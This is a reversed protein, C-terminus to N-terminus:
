RTEIRLPFLLFPTANSFHSELQLRPDSFLGFRTEVEQLRDRLGSFEERRRGQEAKETAIQSELEHRRKLYDENNEGKRRELAAREKELLRLRQGSAFLDLRAKESDIRGQLLDARTQQFEAM